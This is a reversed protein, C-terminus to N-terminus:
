SFVNRIYQTIRAQLEESPIRSSISTISAEVMLEEAKRKDIGRSQMYFLMDDSLKGITAAHRGEVDEEEGLILPITKNVIDEGFLLVDEQEDGSAAKCGERFDVTGRFTKKANGILAENFRMVGNSKKGWFVDNYNIDCVTDPLGIYGYNVRFDSRYGMQAENLGDYVNGAGLELKTVEFSSDAESYGGIDDFFLFGKDLMQVKILHVKANKELYVRTQNGSFGKKDATLIGLRDDNIDATLNDSLGTNKDAALKGDDGPKIDAILDDCSYYMIITSESGEKAHIFTNDLVNDGDAFVYHLLIPSDSKYSSDITYVDAGTGTLKMLKDIDSGMGTAFGQTNYIPYKGAVIMEKPNGIGLKKFRDALEDSGVGSEVTIGKPLCAPKLTRNEKFEIDIDLPAANLKLSNMTLVPLNNVKANLKM